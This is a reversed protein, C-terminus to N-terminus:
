KKDDRKGSRSGPRYDHDPGRQASNYARKPLASEKKPPPEITPFPKEKGIATKKVPPRAM